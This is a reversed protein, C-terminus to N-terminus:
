IRIQNLIQNNQYIKFYTYIIYILFRIIIMGMIYQLGPAKTNIMGMIYQLGIVQTSNLILCDLTKFGKFYCIQRQCMNNPKGQFQSQDNNYDYQKYNIIRIQKIVRFKVIHIFKKSKFDNIIFYNSQQTQLISFGTKGKYLSKFYIRDLPGLSEVYLNRLCYFNSLKYVKYAFKINGNFEVKLFSNQIYLLHNKIVGVFETQYFTRYYFTILNVVIMYDGQLVLFLGNQSFQYNFIRIKTQIEKVITCSPYDIVQISYTGYNNFSVWNNLNKLSGGKGALKM